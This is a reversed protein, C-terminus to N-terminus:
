ESERAPVSVTETATGRMIVLQGAPPAATDQLAPPPPPPAAADTLAGPRVQEVLEIYRPPGSIWAIGDEPAETVGFREDYIRLDTLTRVLAAPDVEATRFFRSRTAEPPSVHLALGDFYWVFNFETALADLFGRSDPAGGRRAIRGRVAPDIVVAIAHNRAFDRLADGLDRDIVVYDYPEIAPLEAGQAPGSLGLAGALALAAARARAARGSAATGAV